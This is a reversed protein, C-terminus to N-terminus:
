HSINLVKGFCAICREVEQQSRVTIRISNPIGCGTRVYIQYRNRLEDSLEDAREIICLAFNACANPVVYVGLDKLGEVLLGRYTHTEKIRNMYYDWENLAEITCIMTIRSIIWPPTRLRIADLQIASGCLYAIRLGSFGLVKSLSKCVVVNPTKVAYRELSLTPDVFDIYTEDIWVRINTPLNDLLETLNEIHVGTPSNPNVFIVLDCDKADDEVQKANWVINKSKACFMNHVKVHCGIVNNLIHPYEGYTPTILLVRSQPTLWTLFTRYILDSSGAGLLIHSSDVNRNKAIALVLDKYIGPPTTRIHWTMDRDFLSVVSPPPSYWADLVDAPLVNNTQHTVEISGGGHVCNSPEMLPFPLNFNVNLDRVIQLIYERENYMCQIVHRANQHGPFYEVKGRFYSHGFTQFNYKRYFPLIEKRALIMFQGHGSADIYRCASCILLKALGRGRYSPKVTLARMEYANDHAFDNMCDDISMSKPHGPPTLAVYAVVTNDDKCAAIVIPAVEDGVSSYQGLEHVYVDERLCKLNRRDRVSLLQITLREQPRPRIFARHKISTILTTLQSLIYTFIHKWSIDSM